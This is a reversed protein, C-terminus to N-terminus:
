MKVKQLGRMKAYRLAHKEKADAFVREITQGRMQYIVRYEPMHRYDKALEM